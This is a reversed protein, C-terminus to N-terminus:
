QLGGAQLTKRTYTDFAQEPSEKIPHKKAELLFFEKQRQVAALLHQKWLVKVQDESIKKKKAADFFQQRFFDLTVLDEKSETKEETAKNLFIYPKTFKYELGIVREEVLFDVWLQLTQESVKIATAVDKLSLKEKDALFSILDDVGTEVQADTM